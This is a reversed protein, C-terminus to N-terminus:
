VRLRPAGETFRIPKYTATLLAKYAVCERHTLFIRLSPWLGTVANM